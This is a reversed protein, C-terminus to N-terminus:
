TADHGTRVQPPNSARSQAAGSREEPHVFPEWHNLGRTAQDHLFMSFAESLPMGCLGEIFLFQGQPNIELWILEGSDEFKLDIVGMRLGLLAVVTRLRTEVEEDLQIPMVSSASDVRWDVHSSRILAAHVVDGFVHARVHDSGRVHEQFITPCLRLSEVKELVAPDLPTTLPSKVRTGSVAKVIVRNSLTECFRLIEAPDASVLTRPVRFGAAEATRLQILKNEARRTAFPKSVWVGTFENLLAGLLAARSDNTILQIFSSDSIDPPIQPLHKVRRWWILNLADIAVKEGSANPVTAPFGDVTSWNLGGRDPIRDTEV